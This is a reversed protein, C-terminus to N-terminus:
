FEETWMIKKGDTLNVWKGYLYKDEPLRIDFGHNKSNDILLLKGDGEKIYRFSEGEYLFRPEQRYVRDCESRDVIKVYKNFDLKFGPEPTDSLLIIKGKERTWDFEKGNYEAICTM